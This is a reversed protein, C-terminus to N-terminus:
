HSIKDRYNLRESHCYLKLHIERVGGNLVRIQLTKPIKISSNILFPLIFFPSFEVPIDVELKM